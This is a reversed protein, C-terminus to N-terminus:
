RIEGAPGPRRCALGPGCVGPALTCPFRAGPVLPLLLFLAIPGASGRCSPGKAWPGPGHRGSGPSPACPGTAGSTGAAKAVM